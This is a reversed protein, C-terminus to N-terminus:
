NLKWYICDAMENHLQSPEIRLVDRVVSDWSQTSSRSQLDHVEQFSYNLCQYEMAFMGLDYAINSDGDCVGSNATLAELTSKSSEAVRSRSSM